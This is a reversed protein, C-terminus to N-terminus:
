NQRRISLRRGDEVDEGPHNIVVEGAKLGDIIQATLGNRQGVTVVQRRAHKGDVVFVAWGQQYRFLSTAPVQLVDDEQWLIFSADVRYGDGLRQWLEPPSTFNSIILVRQEEVGLASTKTFGIPEINNVM